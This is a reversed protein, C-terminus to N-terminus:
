FNTSSLSRTKKSMQHMSRNFGTDAEGRREISSCPSPGEGKLGTDGVVVIEVRGELNRERMGERLAGFFAEDISSLTKEVGKGNGKDGLESGSKRAENAVEEFNM